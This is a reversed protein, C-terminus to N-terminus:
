KSDLEMEAYAERGILEVEGFSKKRKRAQVPRLVSGM